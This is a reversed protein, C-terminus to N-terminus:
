MADFSSIRQRIRDRIEILLGTTPIDAPVSSALVHSPDILGAAPIADDDVLSWSRRITPLHLLWKLLVDIEKQHIYDFPINTLTGPGLQDGRARQHQNLPKPDKYLAPKGREGGSTPSAPIIGGVLHLKDTRDITVMQRETAGKGQPGRVPSQVRGHPAPNIAEPHWLIADWTFNATATEALDLIMLNIPWARENRAPEAHFIAMTFVPLMFQKRSYDRDYRGTNGGLSLSEGRLLTRVARALIPSHQIDSWPTPRKGGMAEVARASDEYILGPDVVRQAGARYTPDKMTNRRLWADEAGKDFNAVSRVVMGGEERRTGALFQAKAKEVSNERSTGKLYAPGVDGMYLKANKLILRGALKYYTNQERSSARWRKIWESPLRLTYPDAPTGAGVPLTEAAERVLKQCLALLHLGDIYLPKGIRKLIRAMTVRRYIFAHINRHYM